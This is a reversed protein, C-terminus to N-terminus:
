RGRRKSFLVLFPASVIAILTPLLPAVLCTEVAWYYILGIPLVAGIGAVIVLTILQRLPAFPSADASPPSRLSRFFNVGGVLLLLLPLLLYPDRRSLDATWLLPQGRLAPVTLLACLLGLYAYYRLVFAPAVMLMSLAQHWRGARYRTAIQESRKAYEAALLFKRQSELEQEAMRRRRVLRAGPNSVFLLLVCLEVLVALLILTLSWRPVLAHLHDLLWMLPRAFAASM